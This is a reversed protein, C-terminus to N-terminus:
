LVLWEIRFGCTCDRALKPLHAVLLDAYMSHWLYLNVLFNGIIWTHRPLDRGGGAIRDDATFNSGPCINKM